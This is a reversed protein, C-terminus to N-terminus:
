PTAGSSKTAELQKRFAAPDSTPFQCVHNECVFATVKGGLARRNKVPPLLVSLELLAPGAETVAVVRNTGYLERLPALMPGADRSGEPTVIVIERMGMLEDSLTSLLHPARTPQAEVSDRFASRLRSLRELYANEGVLTGLRLLNDAAVSNGSPIVGDDLPKERAILVEGDDSTRYYGGGEDDFYYRDVTGQLALAAMLWRSQGDVEYLDILGGIMLAYDELFAPGGAEGGMSVRHLRGENQMTDLVFSAARQAAEVYRPEGLVFGARAFASIALGNWAALIKEDRDPGPRQARVALLRQRAAALEISFEDQTLGLEAAAEAESRPTNLINRGELDGAQTVQFFALAVKAESPSLAEKIEDPTWTFFWGEEKEGSPTLTDADTASYFAGEPGQMELLLYDLIARSVRAFDDRGMLQSAELYALALQANDYLMIEFHPILWKQETSYRHFGGGLQDRLGGSAMKELTLEIASQIEPNGTRRYERLLYRAPFSSPFKTRSGIGGWVSDVHSLYTATARDLVGSDIAQSTSASGAELEQKLLASLTDASATVREPSSSWSSQIRELMSTFGPRGGRDEPPFYTGGFFPKGDPTLWVNLPWGGQKGMAHLAGMYIADVDPRAERDVKIAIFHSNLYKATEVQDFSEEEMVHCWHCTSYGISVFIPRGLREADAFAEEGWPYWNVPNHAHQQLYPSKELLLRNTYLPNGEGDVQQTRPTYESGRLALDAELKQRTDLPM